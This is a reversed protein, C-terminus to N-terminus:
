YTVFTLEAPTYITFKSGGGGGVKSIFKKRRFICKQLKYGSFIKLRKVGNKVANKKGKEKGKKM